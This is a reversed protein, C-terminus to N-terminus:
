IGDMFITALPYYNIVGAIEAHCPIEYEMGKQQPQFQEFMQPIELTVHDADRTYLMGRDLGGAGAANLENVWDIKSLQPFNDMVYKMITQSKDDGYATFALHNYQSIPLILTDPVELGNTVEMVQTLAGKIDAVVEDATKSAWTKAGGAGNPVTYEQIGPYNIFGQINHSALGNWAITDILNDIAKRAAAARRTELKAGSMQSRRIEKISYGYSDGLSKVKISEETGYVDVRPFDHAYDSVVKAQGVEDFRRFTITDAGAPTENSVPILQTAKLQKHKIDYTKTKVYELDREFFISKEGADLHYIDKQTM